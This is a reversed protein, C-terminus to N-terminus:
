EAINAFKEPFNIRDLVRYILNLAEKLDNNSDAVLQPYKRGLRDLFNKKEISHIILILEEKIKALRMSEKIVDPSFIRRM